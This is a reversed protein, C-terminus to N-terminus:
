EIDKKWLRSKNKNTAYVLGGFVLLIVIPSALNGYRVITKTQDNVERIPNTQLSKSRISLLSNDSSLYDVANLAFLLNQQNNSVFQDTIFDSDGIVVMKVRDTNIAGVIQQSYSSSSNKKLDSPLLDALSDDVWSKPSSNIVPKASGSLQVPSVWAFMLSNVGSMMPINSDINEPRIQPWYPYQVLFSGSSTQFNAVVSSEDMVLKPQIVFGNDAFIKDLSTDGIKHAQMNNNVAVKDILALVGKGNDIWKQLSTLNDTNWIANSGLIILTSADIPFDTKVTPNISVVKYEKGLFQRFYQSQSSQADSVNEVVAVSPQINSTLKKIGSVLFYELNGVDGAVPLVESKNGYLLVLGFYGNQVQFKDNNVSSFQLEKIGYKTVDAKAQTDTAPDYYNVKIKSQNNKKFEELILKLNTAVPKVEPPLDSTQYVNINILDDVGKIIEKTSLSLSHIKNETLDFQGLNVNAALLNIAVLVIIINIGSIFGILKRKM